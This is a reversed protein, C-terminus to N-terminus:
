EIRSEMGVREILSESASLNPMQAPDAILQAHDVVYHAAAAFYDFLGGTTQRKLVFTPTDEGRGYAYWQVTMIADDVIYVNFRPPLEYTMLRLRHQAEPRRQRVLKLVSQMHKLNLRTLDAITGAYLEEEEEREACHPGDPYLFCLTFVAEHEILAEVLKERSYNLAIANLSMGVAVVQQAGELMRPYSFERNFETRNRYIQQVEGWTAFADMYPSHLLQKVPLVESPTASDGRPPQGGRKGAPIDTRKGMQVTYALTEPEINLLRALKPIEQLSPFRKGREWASITECSYNWKQATQEQTWGMEQRYTKLLDRLAM